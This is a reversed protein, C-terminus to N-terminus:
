CPNIDRRNSIGTVNSILWQLWGRKFFVSLFHLTLPANLVQAEEANSKEWRQTAPCSKSWKERLAWTNKYQSTTRYVGPHSLLFAYLRSIGLIGGLSTSFWLSLQKWTSVRLLRCLGCAWVYVLVLGHSMCPWKQHFCGMPRLLQALLLRSQPVLPLTAAEGDSAESGPPTWTSQQFATWPEPQHTAGM